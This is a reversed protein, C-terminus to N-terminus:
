VTGAITGNDRLYRSLAAEVEPQMVGRIKGHKAVVFGRFDTLLSKDIEVNLVPM